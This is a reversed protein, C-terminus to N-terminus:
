WYIGMALLIPLFHMYVNDRVRAIQCARSRSCVLCLLRVIRVFEAFILLFTRIKCIITFIISSGDIEYNKFDESQPRALALLSGLTSISSFSFSEM